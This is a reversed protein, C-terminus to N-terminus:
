IDGGTRAQPVGRAGARLAQLGGSRRAGGAARRHRLAAGDPEVAGEPPRVGPSLRAPHDPEAHGRRDRDRQHDGGAPPGQKQWIGPLRHDLRRVQRLGRRTKGFRAQAGQRGDGGQGGRVPVVRRRRHAGEGEPRSRKIWERAARGLPMMGPERLRIVPQGSEELRRLLIGVQTTKGSGEGGEFSVFLTM